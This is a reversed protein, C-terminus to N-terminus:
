NGKVNQSAGSLGEHTVSHGLEGELQAVALCADDLGINSCKHFSDACVQPYKTQRCGPVDVSAASSSKLILVIVFIVAIIFLTWQLVYKLPYKHTFKM